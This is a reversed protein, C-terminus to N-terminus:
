HYLSRFIIESLLELGKISLMRIIIAFKFKETNLLVDFDSSLTIKTVEETFPSPLVRIETLTALM